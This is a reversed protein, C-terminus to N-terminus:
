YNDIHKGFSWKNDLIMGLYTIQDAKVVQRCSNQCNKRNCKDKHITLKFNDEDKMRFLMFKTKDENIYLDNLICWDQIWNLNKQLEIKLDQLNESIVLCLIDDAFLVLNMRGKENVDNVYILFLIPGLISGQPVGHNNDIINSYEDEIKVCSSRNSLYSKLVGCFKECLGNTKLKKILKERNITDFAKQLDIFIAGVQKGDDLANAINDNLFKLAENTGKGKQFGFQENILINGEALFDKLQGVFFSEIMKNLVPLIAIPRYNDFNNKAGKKYIPRVVQIKMKRPWRETEIICNTLRTLLEATTKASKKFYKLSLNDVGQSNTNKM